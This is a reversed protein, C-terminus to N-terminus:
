LYKPTCPQRQFRSASRRAKELDLDNTPQTFVGHSLLLTSIFVFAVIKYM